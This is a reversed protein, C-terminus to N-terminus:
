PTRALAKLMRALSITLGSARMIEAIDGEVDTDRRSLEMEHGKRVM